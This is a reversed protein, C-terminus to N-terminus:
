LKRSKRYLINFLNPSYNCFAVANGAAAPQHDSLKDSFNRAPRRPARLHVFFTTLLAESACVRVAFRRSRSRFARVSEEVPSSMIKGKDRPLRHTIRSLSRRLSCDFARLHLILFKILLNLSFDLVRPKAIAHCGSLGFCRKRIRKWGNEGSGSGSLDSDIDATEHM